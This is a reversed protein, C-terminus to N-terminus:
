KIADLVEQVKVGDELTPYSGIDEGRCMKVYLDMQRYYMTGATAATFSWRLTECDPTVAEISFERATQLYNALLVVPQGAPGSLLVGATDEVDLGLDGMDTWTFGELHVGKGLIWNAVFLSHPLSDTVVGRYRHAVTLYDETHWNQIFQGGKILLQSVGREQLDEVFVELLFDWRYVFGIMVKNSEIPRVFAPMRKGLPKEVFRNAIPIDWGARVDPPTCDLIGDFTGLKELDVEQYDAGMDPNPDVTVVEHGLSQRLIFAHKKGISGLGMLLFRM